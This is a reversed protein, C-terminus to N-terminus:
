PLVKFSNIMMKFTALFELKNNEEPSYTLIYVNDGGGVQELLNSSLTLYATLGDVSYIVELGSKLQEMQQTVLAPSSNILEAYWEKIGLKAPNDQVIIQMLGDVDSFFQVLEGETRDEPHWIKPYYIRYNYKSNIFESILGSESLYGEGMPNYLSLVEQNDKYGDGDSDNTNSNTIYINNEEVDSLGDNDSDVGLIFEPTEEEEEERQTLKIKWLDVASGFCITDETLEELSSQLYIYSALRGPGYGLDFLENIDYACQIYKGGYEVMELNIIEESTPFTVQVICSDQDLGIVRFENYGFNNDEITATAAQCNNIIEQGLCVLEPNYYDELNSIFGCNKELEEEPELEEEELEEEQPEPQLAQEEEPLVPNMVVTQTGSIPPQNLFPIKSLISIDGESFYLYRILFIAAVVIIIGGSVMIIIGVKKAKPASDKAAGARFRAPMIFFEVRDLSVESAQPEQKKEEKDKKLLKLPNFM